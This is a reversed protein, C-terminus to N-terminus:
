IFKLYFHPVKFVSFLFRIHLFQSIRFKTLFKIRRTAINKATETYMKKDAILLRTFFLDLSYKSPDPFRKRCLPDEPKYFSENHMVVSSGFTRMISIAGTAELLDADHVVKAEITKPKTNRSFSCMLIAHVVGAIKNKPYGRMKSLIGEAAKASDELEYRYRATGKHVIIDHFIAAPIVIDLDAKNAKAIKEAIILVRYLHNFDHSLDNKVRDKAVKIIKKRLNKNM